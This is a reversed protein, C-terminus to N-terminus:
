STTPAAAPGMDAQDRRAARRPPRELPRLVEHPGARELGAAEYMFVRFKSHDVFTEALLIPNGWAKEWDECLRRATAALFFSALRPFAGREALGSFAHQQRGPRTARVAREPALRDLPGEARAQIRREATRGAGAVPGGPPSTDFDAGPSGGSASTTISTWRRTGARGSAPHRSAFRSRASGSNRRRPRASSAATRGWPRRSLPLSAPFGAFFAREAFFDQGPLILRIVLPFTRSAPNENMPQFEM